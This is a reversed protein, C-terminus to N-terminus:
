AMDLQVFIRLPPKYLANSPAKEAIGAGHGRAMARPVFIGRGAFLAFAAGGGLLAM